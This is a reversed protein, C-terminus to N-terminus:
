KSIKYTAIAREKGLEDILRFTIEDFQSLNAKNVKLVNYQSSYVPISTTMVPDDLHASTRIIGKDQWIGKVEMATGYGGRYGNFVLMLFYQTFDFNLFEPPPEPVVPIEQQWEIGSPRSYTQMSTIVWIVASEETRWYSGSMKFHEFSITTGPLISSGPSPSILPSIPGTMPSPSVLPTTEIVPASSLSPSISPSIPNSSPSVLLTTEVVPASSSSPSVSPSIPNPSPSTLPTESVPTCGIVFAALLLSILACATVFCATHFVM